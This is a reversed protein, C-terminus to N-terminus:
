KGIFYTANVKIDELTNNVCGYYRGFQFQIKDYDNFCEAIEGIRKLPLNCTPNLVVIPLHNLPTNSLLKDQNLKIIQIMKEYNGAYLTDAGKLIIVNSPDCLIRSGRKLKEGHGDIVRGDATSTLVGRFDTIAYIHLTKEGIKLDFANGDVSQLIKSFGILKGIEMSEPLDFLIRYAQHCKKVEGGNKVCEEENAFVEKMIEILTDLNNGDYSLISDKLSYQFQNTNYSVTLTFGYLNSISCFLLILLTTTILHNEFNIKM